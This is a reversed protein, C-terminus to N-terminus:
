RSGFKVSAFTSGRPAQAGPALHQATGNCKKGKYVTAPVATGNHAARAEQSMTLCKSDPPNDVYFPKGKPGVWSFTGKAALATGTPLALALTLGTLAAIVPRPLRM